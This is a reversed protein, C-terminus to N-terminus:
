GATKNDIRNEKSSMDKDGDELLGSIQRRGSALVEEYVMARGLAIHVVVHRVGEIMWGGAM